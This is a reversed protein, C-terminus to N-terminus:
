ILSLKGSQLVDNAQAFFSFDGVSSKCGKVSFNVSCKIVQMIVLECQGIRRLAVFCNRRAPNPHSNLMFRCTEILKTLKQLIKHTITGNCVVM